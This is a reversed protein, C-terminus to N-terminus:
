LVPAAQRHRFAGRRFGSRDVTTERPMVVGVPERGMTSPRSVTRRRRSAQLLAAAGDLEEGGMSALGDAAAGDLSALPLAPPSEPPLAPPPDVPLGPCASGVAGIPPM